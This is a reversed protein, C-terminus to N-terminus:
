PTCNACPVSTPCPKACPAPATCAPVQVPKCVTAPCEQVCPKVVLFYKTRPHECNACGDTCCDKSSSFLSPCKPLCFPECVKSYAPKVTVKTTQETVCITKTPTVCTPCNEVQGGKVYSAPTAPVTTPKAPTAVNGQALQALPQQAFASGALGIMLIGSILLRKM